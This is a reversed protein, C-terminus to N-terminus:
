IEQSLVEQVKRKSENIIQRIREKTLGLTKGIERLTQRRDYSIGFYLKVILLERPTLISELYSAIVNDRTREAVIDPPLATKFDEIAIPRDNEDMSTDLSTTHAYRCQIASLITKIRQEAKQTYKAIEPITPERELLTEMEHIAKRVETADGILYTPISIMSTQSNLFSIIAQNIHYGAYTTFRGQDPEFRQIAALLALNGESILDDISLPPRPHYHAALSAVLRRNQSILTDRATQADSQLQEYADLTIQRTILLDYVKRAKQITEALQKEEEATLLEHNCDSEIRTV